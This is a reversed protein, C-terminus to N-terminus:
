YATRYGTVAIGSQAEPGVPPTVTVTIQVAGGQPINGLVSSAVVVAVDYSGLGSAALAGNMDLVGSSAYGNYDCVNAFTNRHAGPLKGVCVPVGSAFAQSEVEELLAEAATLAQKRVLTDASHGTVQNMVLMVGTLAIGVIVIFMILEILSIGRQLFLASHQTSLASHHTSLASYRSPKGWCEASLVRCQQKQCQQKTCM